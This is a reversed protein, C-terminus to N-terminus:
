VHSFEQRNQLYPWHPTEPCLPLTHCAQHLLLVPCGLAGGSCSCLWLHGSSSLPSNPTPCSLLLANPPSCTLPPKVSETCLKPLKRRDEQGNTWGSADQLRLQARRGRGWAPGPFFAAAILKGHMSPFHIVNKFIIMESNVEGQKLFIQTSM